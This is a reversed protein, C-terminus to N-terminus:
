QVGNSASHNFTSKVLRLRMADQVEQSFATSIRSFDSPVLVALLLPSLPPMLGTWQLREPIKRCLFVPWGLTPLQEAVAAGEKKRLAAGRTKSGCRLRACFCGRQALTRLVSLRLRRWVRQHRPRSDGGRWLRSTGSFRAHHGLCAVRSLDAGFLVPRPAACCGVRRPTCLRPVHVWRGVRQHGAFLAVGHWSTM